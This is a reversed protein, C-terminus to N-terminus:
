GRGGGQVRAHLGGATSTFILRLIRELRDSTSVDGFPKSGAQPHLEYWVICM